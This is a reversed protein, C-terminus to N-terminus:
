RRIAAAVEEASRTNLIDRAELWGRRAMRVGYSM